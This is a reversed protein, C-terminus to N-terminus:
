EQTTVGLHFGIDVSLSTCGQDNYCSLPPSLGPTQLYAIFFSLTIYKYLPVGSLLIFGLQLYWLIHFFRSVNHWTFPALWLFFFGRQTIENIYLESFPFVYRHHFFNLVTPYFLVSCFQSCIPYINILPIHLFIRPHHSLEVYKEIHQLVPTCM